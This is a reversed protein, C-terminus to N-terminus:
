AIPNNMNVVDGQHPDNVVTLLIFVHGQDATEQVSFLYPYAPMISWGFIPRPQYIHTLHWARSPLRAGVNLLDPGTRMTGLQHPSDYVYDSAVAARGWGRQADPLDSSCVYSSWDSIRM